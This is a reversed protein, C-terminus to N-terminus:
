IRKFIGMLYYLSPFLVLAGLVLAILLLELTIAPAAASHITIDPEVLYPYQAAAWGLLILAVQGAACFRALPYRRGWLAAFAGVACCATAVHLGAAWVSRTIGARVRPAGAGALLFVVLAMVAVAVAALLARRRFDDQLDRDSTELTLYVAALYAFLVLAFLGVAWPFPAMWAAFFGSTVVGDVVRIEGSANAGLTVGLLLPTVVSAISFVLSWRRQADDQRVYDSRFTFAAGRLVVGILLLTLPVHLATSIAAFAPPFATFLIVVVLILWVHNAEWVPAIADAILARQASARPGRAFLDWVGGGYDAGGLLAYFILSGVMAGAIVTELM